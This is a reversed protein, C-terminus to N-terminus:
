DHLETRRIEAFADTLYGDVPGALLHAVLLPGHRALAAPGPADDDQDPDYVGLAGGLLTLMVHPDVDPQWAASARVADELTRRVDDGDLGDPHREELLRRVVLGLVHASGDVTALTATAAEFGDRDREVAATVAARAAVAVARAAPPLDKM